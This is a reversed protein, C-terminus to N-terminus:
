ALIGPVNTSLVRKAQTEVKADSLHGGPLKTPRRVEHDRNANTYEFLAETQPNKM